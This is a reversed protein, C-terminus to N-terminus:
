LRSPMRDLLTVPNKSPTRSALASRSRSRAASRRSSGGERRWKASTGQSVRRESETVSEVNWPHGAPSIAAMLRCRRESSPRWVITLSFGVSRPYSSTSSMRCARSPYVCMARRRCANSRSRFPVFGERDGALQRSLGGPEAETEAHLERVREDDHIGSVEHRSFLRVEGALREVDERQREPRPEAVLKARRERDRKRGPDVRRVHRAHDRATEHRDRAARVKQPGTAVLAEVPLRLSERPRHAFRAGGRDRIEDPGAGSPGAAVDGARGEQVM